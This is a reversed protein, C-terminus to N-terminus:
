QAHGSILTTLAEPPQVAKGEWFPQDGRLFEGGEDCRYGFSVRDGGPGVFRIQHRDLCFARPVLTLEVDLAEVARSIEDPSEITAVLVETAPTEQDPEPLLVIEIAVTDALGAAEVVNVTAQRGTVADQGPLRVGCAALAIAILLLTPVRISCTKGRSSNFTWKRASASIRRGSGGM